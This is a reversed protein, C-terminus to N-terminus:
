NPEDRKRILQRLIEQSAAITERTKRIQEDIEARGRRLSAVDLQRQVEAPPLSDDM